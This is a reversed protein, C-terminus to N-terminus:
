GLPFNEVLTWVGCPCSKECFGCGICRDADAERVFTGKDQEIRRIAKTPCVQDCLGCDMCRGCSSCQAACEDIGHFELKRPDYYELTMRSYDIRDSTESFERTSPAPVQQLNRSIDKRVLADMALAATRGAGIADTLLGPKVIDGIAFIKPDSTQFDQNVVVFGRDVQIDEELFDLDPADGISIIVMDAEIVEGSTLVVGQDTIERTFVPYRFKAGAKEAEQREKGFSAPKQIDILTIEEAGLHSAEVAADCGVNGAGIVVVKRGTKQRGLKAQKLFTLAPIMKEAGNVPLTRPQQAGAAIIIYDFDQRLQKFRERDLGDKLHVHPLVRRVRALEAELVKEPLRHSPIATSMKGGLVEEADYIVAEHGMLRLQWAASLGAPGGGIVATRFGTLPPLEPDKGSVGEKGLLSIDVPTLNGAAKTCSQMCLHPCLYGCISAPFPTYALALDIAEEIKGERVLRWREQVPIGSPCAAQCPAMYRAHEWVPVYRRLDGTVILGVPSRDLDTLDGIMGGQGLEKDWVETRFRAMSKRPATTKEMPTKAALCQWEKRRALTEALEPRKIAALFNNLNTELWEWADDTVPILKADAQSFGKVPGRFFIRGGVMGVCPRYGLINEPDQPEYGCIVATGGAMFEAFYDGASGLVWLEPQDFRPNHKTMTMGRAGINGAVYVKGQAMANCVGNTAYGHVIIEAGANLWGLDDSAPGDIEITTGMTGMAGTRQGPAGTIRVRVKEQGAEFIRGGLGHQGKARIEIERAGSRVAEQVREELIRSPIRGSEDQGALLVKQNNSM